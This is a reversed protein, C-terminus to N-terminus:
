GRPTTRWAILFGIGLLLDIGAAALTTGGIKGAVALM